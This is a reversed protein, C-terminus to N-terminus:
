NFKRNFDYFYKLISLNFLKKTCKLELLLVIKFVLVSINTITKKWKALLEGM